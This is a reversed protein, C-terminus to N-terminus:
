LFCRHCPSLKGDWTPRRGSGNPHHSQQGDRQRHGQVPLTQCIGFLPAALPPAEIVGHASNKMAKASATEIMIPVASRCAAYVTTIDYTRITRDDYGYVNDTVFVDTKSKTTIIIIEM